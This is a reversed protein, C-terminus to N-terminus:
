EPKEKEIIRMPMQDITKIIVGFDPTGSQRLKETGDKGILVFTNEEGSVGYLSRLLECKSKGPGAAPGMPKEPVSCTIVIVDREKLQDEYLATTEAFRSEDSSSIFAIVLRNKWKYKELPNDQAGTFGAFLILVLFVAFFVPRETRM